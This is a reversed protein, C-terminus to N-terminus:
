DIDLDDIGRNIVWKHFNIISRSYYGRDFNIIKTITNVQNLTGSVANVTVKYHDIQVAFIMEFVMTYIGTNLYRVDISLRGNYSNTKDKDKDITFLYTKQSIRHLSSYNISSIFKIRDHDEKFLNDTMVKKFVNEKYSYSIAEAQANKIKLDILNSITNKSDNVTKNVYNVNAAYSTENSDATPLNIIDYLNMDLKGEIPDSGDKSFAKSGVGNIQRELDGRQTHFYKFNLASDDPPNGSSPNNPPMKLNRITNNGMNLSSEMGKNGSLPLYLSKAGGNTLAANDQSSSRIGTITHDGMQLNGRM